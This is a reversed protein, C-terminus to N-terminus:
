FESKKGTKKDSKVGDTLDESRQARERKFSISPTPLIYGLCASMTGAWYEPRGTELALNIISAVVIIFILAIQAFFIVEQSVCRGGCWRIASMPTADVNGASRSIREM